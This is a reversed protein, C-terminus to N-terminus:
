VYMREKDISTNKTRNCAYFYYSSIHLLLEPILCARVEQIRDIEPRTKTVAMGPKYVSEM